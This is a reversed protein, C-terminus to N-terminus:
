RDTPRTRSFAGPEEALRKRTTSSFRLILRLFSRSFLPREDQGALPSPRDGPHAGDQKRSAIEGGSAEGAAGKPFHVDPRPALSAYDTGM